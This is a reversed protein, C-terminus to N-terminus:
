SPFITVEEAGDGPGVEGAVVAVGAEAGVLDATPKWSAMRKLANETWSFKLLRSISARARLTLSVSKRRGEQM